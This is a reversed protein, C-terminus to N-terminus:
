DLSILEEEVQEYRKADLEGSLLAKRLLRTFDVYNSMTLPGIVWDGESSYYRVLQTWAQTFQNWEPDDLWSCDPKSLSIADAKTEIMMELQFRTLEDKM